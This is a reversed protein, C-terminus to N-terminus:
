SLNTETRNWRLLKQLDLVSTLQLFFSFNLIKATLALKHPAPIEVAHIQREHYMGRLHEGASLARNATDGFINCVLTNCGM